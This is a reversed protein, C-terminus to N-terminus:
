NQLQGAASGGSATNDIGAASGAPATPAIGAASGGSATNGISAASGAPATNGIGAAPGGPATNGIGAASGGPATNGIGAASGGSATNGIDAAPGAPATNGISAASGAPATNGIGAASGGPAQEKWWSDKKRCLAQAVCNMTKCFPVTIPEDKPRFQFQWPSVLLLRGDSCRDIRETSPHYIQPFGNDVILITTFGRNAAEDIITQEGPAIRPSVLVAGHAAEELCRRKQELFRKNDCRHCVVPLLRRKLLSRDGYSDCAIRGGALLLRREIATLVEPPVLAPLCERQLFGHLAAPTVATDIGGRIPQLRTRDHSRLWRSKPNNRIYARQLELQEEEIPMVDCYSPAFLPPRGSTFREKGAASGGPATPAATRAGLPKAAPPPTTNTPAEVAPEPPQGTIAWYARNCGTKFGAIVQGLHTPRGTRSVIQRSVILICHLHEPMIVYEDVTIMSYHASIATTLEHEVAKGAPTLSITASEADTGVVSGLPRGLGEAVHMTIHYIGPRSYNHKAARRGM